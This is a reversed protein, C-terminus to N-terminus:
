YYPNYKSEPIMIQKKNHMFDFQEKPMFKSKNTLFEHDATMPVVRNNKRNKNRYRHVFSYKIILLLCRLM